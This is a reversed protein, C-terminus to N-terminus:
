KSGDTHYRSEWCKSYSLLIKYIEGAGFQKWILRFYYFICSFKLYARFYGMTNMTCINLSIINLWSFETFIKYVASCEYWDIFISVVSVFAIVGKLSYSWWQGSTWTIGKLQCSKTFLEWLLNCLIGVLPKSVSLCCTVFIPRRM